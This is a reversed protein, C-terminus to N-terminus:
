GRDLVGGSLMPVRNLARTEIYQLVYSNRMLMGINHFFLSVSQKKDFNRCTAIYVLLKEDLNKYTVFCIPLKEDESMGTVVCFSMNRLWMRM